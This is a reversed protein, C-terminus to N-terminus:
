VTGNLDARMAAGERFVRALVFAVLVAIWGTFSPQWDLTDVHLHRTVFTVIGFTLDLLQLLLLTVGIVRLRDANAAHFPDGGDVSAAVAQLARLMPAVVFVAVIGLALMAQVLHIAGVPDARGAYKVALHAALRDGGIVTGVLGAAFPVLAAWNSVRLLRVAVILLRLSRSRGHRM